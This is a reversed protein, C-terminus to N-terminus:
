KSTKLCKNLFDNLDDANGYKSEIVLFQDDERFDLKRKDSKEVFSIYKIPLILKPEM